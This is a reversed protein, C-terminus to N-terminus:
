KRTINEFRNGVGNDYIGPNLNTFTLDKFLNNSSASDRIFVGGFDSDKGSYSQFTSRKIISSTVKELIMHNWNISGAQAMVWNNDFYFRHQNHLKIMPGALPAGKSVLTNGYIKNGESVNKSFFAIGYTKTRYIENKSVTVDSYTGDYAYTVFIANTTDYVTNQDIKVSNIHSWSELSIATSTNQFCNGSIDANTLYHAKIGIGVNPDVISTDMEHCTGLYNIANDKVTINSGNLRIANMKFNLIRNGQITINSFNPSNGVYIGAGGKLGYRHTPKEYSIMDIFNNLIQIDDNLIDTADLFIGTRKMEYFENESVTLDSVNHFLVGSGRPRYDGPTLIASIRMASGSRRFVNNSIRIKDSNWIILLDEASNEFLSNTVTINSVKTSNYKSGLFTVTTGQQEDGEENDKGYIALNNIYIDSIEALRLKNTHIIPKVGDKTIGLLRINSLGMASTNVSEIYYQHGGEFIISKDQVSADSLAQYFETSCDQVADTFQCYEEFKLSLSDFAQGTFSLLAFIFIGIRM